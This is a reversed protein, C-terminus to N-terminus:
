FKYVVAKEEVVLQISGTKERHMKIFEFKLPLLNFTYDETVYQDCPDFNSNHSLFLEAKPSKSDTFYNKAILNFVHERCGGSYSLNLIISDGVIKMHNFKYQDIKYSDTNKGEGLIVGDTGVYNDILIKNTSCQIVFLLSIIIFLKSMIKM